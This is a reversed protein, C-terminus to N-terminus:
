RIMPNELPSGALGVMGGRLDVLRWLGAMHLAFMESNNDM